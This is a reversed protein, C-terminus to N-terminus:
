IHSMPLLWSQNVVLHVVGASALGHCGSAAVALPFWWWWCVGENWRKWPVSLHLESWVWWLTPMPPSGVVLGV